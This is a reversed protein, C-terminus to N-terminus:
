RGGADVGPAPVPSAAPLANRRAKRVTLTASKTVGAYTASIVSTRNSAVSAATATFVASTAGAPVTVSPAVTAVAPNASSLTVVAGGSPAGSTLTVTGISTGGGAVTSPSLALSALAAAPAPNITLTASKTVGSYLGSIQAPVPSSVATTAVPFTASTAGAPVTVSAPPTAAGSASSLTVVAGGSPAGGSLAVTGTSAGGGTVTAPNLSIGALAAPGSSPKWGLQVVEFDSATLAGFLPNLVGNDWNVDYNGSIYMDSGNDAM